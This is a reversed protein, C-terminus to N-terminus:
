TPAQLITVTVASVGLVLAFPGAGDTITVTMQLDGAPRFEGVTSSAVVRPDKIMEADIAHAVRIVDDPAIDDLIFQTVDTGYNPDDLLCGRTSILRRYLAQGLCKRGSVLVLAPNIDSTCDLDTGYDTSM